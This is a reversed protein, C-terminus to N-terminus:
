EWWQKWTEKLCFWYSVNPHDKTDPGQDGYAMWAALPLLPLILIMFVFKMTQFGREM